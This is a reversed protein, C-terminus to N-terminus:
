PTSDFNIWEFLEKRHDNPKKFYSPFKKPNIIKYKSDLYEHLSSYRFSFVYELVHISNKIKIKRWYKNILKASNLHIYSYLYKLYRDNHCHVAKFVNEYLKGTRKYKKNFYMSYATLLKRMYKSIGGDKKEYVLIHFHNPMLCYAGIDVITEQRDFNKGIDRLTISRSTNCIYMLFLFHEHDQKDKFIIRKEVGRNYLHYYEGVSFVQKREAM